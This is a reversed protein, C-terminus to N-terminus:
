VGARVFVNCDCVGVNSGLGVGNRLDRISM